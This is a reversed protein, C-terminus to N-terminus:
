GNRMKFTTANSESRVSERSAKAAIVAGANEADRALKLTSRNQTSNFALYELVHATGPVTEFRSGAKVFLGIAAAQM